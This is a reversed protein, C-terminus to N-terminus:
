HKLIRAKELPYGFIMSGKIEVGPDFWNHRVLVKTLEHLPKSPVSKLIQLQAEYYLQRQKERNMEKRAGEILADVNDIKGDGDADVDGFHSFNTVATPKGIIAKSYYYQTLYSDAVPARGAYYVVVDNMDKRINAHFTTHDVVKIELNVGLPKWQEQCIEMISKYYPKDTVYGMLKFGNPYGAEALLNKAKALDYNYLLEPPTKEKPLAAYYSPPVPATMEHWVGGFFDKFAKRDAAIALAKRVKINDLPKKTMNFHIACGSGLPVSDVIVTKTKKVDEVWYSDREGYIADLDGKIFAMTRSAVNSMFYMELREITPAGRFYNPNRVFTIKEKAKYNDFMFPGTGIVDLGLNKLGKEEGQKKCVIMGAQYAMAQDMIFFTSPSKLFIQVTYKDVVKVKDITLFKAGYPTGLKPNKLRDFTYQVDAATFEGYGKHWQVGKRLHFTYVLGDKSIEWSEALDGELNDFDLTGPKLRVLGNFVGNGASYTMDPVAFAPDMTNLDSTHHGWRWVQKAALEPSASFVFGPALCFFAALLSISYLIRHRM